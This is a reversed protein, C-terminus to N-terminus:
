TRGECRDELVPSNSAPGDAIKGNCTPWLWISHDPAHWLYDQASKILDPVAWDKTTIGHRVWVVTRSRGGLDSNPSMEVFGGWREGCTCHVVRYSLKVRFYPAPDFADPRLLKHFPNRCLELSRTECQLRYRVGMQCPSKMSSRAGSALVLQEDLSQQPWVM